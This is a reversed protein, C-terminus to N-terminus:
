IIFDDVDELTEDEPIADEDQMPTFLMAMLEEGSIEAPPEEVAPVNWTADSETVVLELDTRIAEAGEDDTGIVTIEYIHDRDMDWVQDFSPTFWSQFTVVGTDEEVEFINADEGALTYLLGETGGSGDISNETVPEQDADGEDDNPVADRWTADTQTVVLELDSRSVDQGTDDQGIVSVEYVHDRDMDWVQDYSPTFWQQYSVEGTEADVQFVGADAGALTFQVADGGIDDGNGGDLTDDGNGGDLTDDGADGDLTDDGTDGDLTDDGTDGDLTDDGTDGDLTDDGTSGDLTDDGTGSDLTDDEASTRWQAGTPTVVLELDSRGIEAGSSDQEIVSVEYVHDGNVDWVQTYSPTFWDMNSIAGTDPDVVFHGADPGDLVYRDNAATEGGTDDGTGGDLTDDGTGGDVTDAIVTGELVGTLGLDAATLPSDSVITVVLRGDTVDLDLTTVGGQITMVDSVAAANEYGPIESLDILDAAGNAGFDTIRVSGSLNQLIFLDDGDGGTVTDADGGGSIIDNGEGGKLLDNGAGGLLTDNGVGSNIVDNGDGGDAYFSSGASAGDVFDNGADMYISDSGEYVGIFALDNGAGGHIEDNGQSGALTDNGEGGFVTDTGISGILHDDGERGYILDDGDRGFVHDNGAGTDIVDDGYLGEIEDDGDGGELTDNGHGGRLTDNGAGGVLSDDGGEGVLSDDGGLGILTDGASDGTLFDANQTGTISGDPQVPM